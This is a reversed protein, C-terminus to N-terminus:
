MKIYILTVDEQVNTFNMGDYMEIEFFDPLIVTLEDGSIAGLVDEGVLQLTVTNNSQTWTTEADFGDQCAFIYEFDSPDNSNVDASIYTLGTVLRAEGNSDFSVFNGSYCPVEDFLNKQALGDNDFDFATEISLSILNWTGKASVNSTSDSDDSSCSCLSFIFALIIFNQIKNKM